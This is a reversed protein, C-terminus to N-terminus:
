LVLEKCQQWYNLIGVVMAELNPLIKVETAKHSHGSIVTMRQEPHQRMHDLLLESVVKSSYYPLLYEHLAQEWKKSAISTEQFPATHTAVLIHDFESTGSLLRKFWSAAEGAMAILKQRRQEFTLNQLDNIYLFDNMGIQDGYTGYRTDYWCDHGILCVDETLHVVGADLLYHLNQLERDLTRVKDRVAVIAGDWYDHNGLVFYIPMALGEALIRLFKDITHATAIDGCILAADFGGSAIKELLKRRQDELLHDLHLDALLAIKM